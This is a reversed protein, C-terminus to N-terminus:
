TSLRTRLHSTDHNKLIAEYWAKYLHLGNSDGRHKRGFFFPWTTKRPVQALSGSGGLSSSRLAVAASTWVAATACRPSPDSWSHNKDVKQNTTSGVGKFFILWITLEGCFLTRREAGLRRGLVLVVQSVVSLIHGFINTLNSIKGLYPTFIFFIQFWWRTKCVKPHNKPFGEKMEGSSASGGYFGRIWVVHINNRRLKRGYEHFPFISSCPVISSGISLFKQFQFISGALPLQM